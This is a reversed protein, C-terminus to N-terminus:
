SAILNVIIKKESREAFFGFPKQSFNKTLLNPFTKIRFLIIVQCLHCFKEKLRIFIKQIALTRM